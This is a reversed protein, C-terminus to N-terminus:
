SVLSGRIAGTEDQKFIPMALMSRRCLPFTTRTPRHLLSRTLIGLLGSSRVKYEQGERYLVVQMLEAVESNNHLDFPIGM